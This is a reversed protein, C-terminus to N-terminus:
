GKLTGNDMAAIGPVGLVTTRVQRFAIAEAADGSPATRTRAALAPESSRCRLPTSVAGSATLM